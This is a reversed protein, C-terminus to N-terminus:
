IRITKKAENMIEVITYMNSINGVGIKDKVDYFELCTGCSVIEVGKEFLESIYKLVSSKETTLYVGSNIFIITKPLIEQETLAYFYSKILIKGLEEDGEGMKNSGIIIVLDEKTNEELEVLINGKSVKINFNEGDKIIEYDLKKSGAFKRINEKAIENDVIILVTGSDIKDIEKKLLIVPKPCGLGRADIKYM